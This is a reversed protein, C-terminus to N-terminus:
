ELLAVCRCLSSCEKDYTPSRVKSGTFNHWKVVGRRRRDGVGVWEGPTTTEQTSSIDASAPVAQKVSKKSRPKPRIKRSSSRRRSSSSVGSANGCLM